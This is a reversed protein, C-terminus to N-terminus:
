VSSGIWSMPVRKEFNFDRFSAEHPYGRPNCVVRANNLQYDCSSHMHGHLWIKVSDPVDIDSYYCYNALGASHYRSDVSKFSPAHHSIVVDPQWEHMKAITERHLEVSKEPSFGEIIHFDNMYGSGVNKTLPCDKNMDTWFTAGFIKTHNEWADVSGLPDIPHAYCGNELFIIGRQAYYKWVKKLDSISAGYYEHNGAIAIVARYRDRAIELFAPLHKCSDLHPIPCIDGALVLLDGGKLRAEAQQPLIQNFEFHLDSMVTIDPPPLKIKKPLKLGAM